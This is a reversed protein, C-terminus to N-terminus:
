KGWIAKGSPTTLGLDTTNVEIVAGKTIINLSTYLEGQPNKKVGMLPLCFTTKLEPHTVHAKRM